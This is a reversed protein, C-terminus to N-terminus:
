TLFTFNLLIYLRMCPPKNLEWSKDRYVKPRPECTQVKNLLSASVRNITEPFRDWLQNHKSSFGAHVFALAAHSLPSKDKKASDYPQNPEGALPHLPLRLATIFHEKLSTGIEGEYIENYRAREDNNYENM